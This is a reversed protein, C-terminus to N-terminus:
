VRGYEGVEKKKQAENNIMEKAGVEQENIAKLKEGLCYKGM